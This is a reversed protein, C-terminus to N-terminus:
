TTMNMVTQAQTNRSTPTTEGGQNKYLVAVQKFFKGDFSSIKRILDSAVTLNNPLDLRNKLAEWRGRFSNKNVFELGHNTQVFFFDSVKSEGRDAKNENLAEQLKKALSYM